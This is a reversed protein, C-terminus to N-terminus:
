IDAGFIVTFFGYYDGILIDKKEVNDYHVRFSFPIEQSNPKSIFTSNVQVEGKDVLKRDKCFPCSLSFPIEYDAGKDTGKKKLKYVNNPDLEVVLGEVFLGKALMDFKTSASISNGGRDLKAQLNAIGGIPKVIRIETLESPKYYVRLTFIRNINRYTVVGLTSRFWYRFSLPITGIYYGEVKDELALFSDAINIKKFQLIPRLFYFPMIADTNDLRYGTSCEGGRSDELHIVNGSFDDRECQRVSALTEEVLTPSAAGMNYEMGIVDLNVPVDGGPGTLILNPNPHMFGASWQTTPPLNSQPEWTSLTYKNDGQTIVNTFSVSNGSVKANLTFAYCNMTFLTFVVYIFLKNM